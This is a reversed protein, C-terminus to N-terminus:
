QKQDLIERLKSVLAAPSFPKPLFATAGAIALKSRLQPDIYGSMFVVRAGPDLTRIRLFMDYGSERPLGMDTVIAAIDDHHNVFQSYGEFGDAAILVKYGFTRLTQELVLRLSEEDEVLLVTESGGRLESLPPLGAEEQEVRLAPFYLSFTTGANLESEFDIFGSHAKVVAYAVALGLGSNSTKEKMTFFPEFIHQAVGPGMGAGDDSVRVRVYSDATADKFRNRVYKGELMDATIGIKGRDNATPAALIAERANLSITLLTQYIASENGQILPLTGETTANILITKEITRFLTSQLTSIVDGIALPTQSAEDTNAFAMLRKGVNVGNRLADKGLKLYQKLSDDRVGSELLTFVGILVSMINNLDHAIGGALQGLSAMKQAHALQGEIQRQYTVDRKVAVFNIIRGSRDRVPSITMEERYLTGNKRRNTIEGSWTDGRLITAWLTRYFSEEQKGSKVIRPNAGLLEERTYGTQHESAPNVYVITGDTATIVISEAAQEVAMDLRTREEEIRKAESIDRSVIVVNAVAGRADRIVNGQSEIYRTPRDPVTFRYVIRRGVGTEITEQFVRRVMDRDDPHIDKFSDTGRLQEREGFIRSYSPSNYLRKGQLDIVAILDEVNALIMHLLHETKDNLPESKGPKGSPPNLGKRNPDSENM